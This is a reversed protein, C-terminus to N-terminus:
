PSNQVGRSFFEGALVLRMSLKSRDAEFTSAVMVSQPDVPRFRSKSPIFYSGSYLRFYTRTRNAFPM